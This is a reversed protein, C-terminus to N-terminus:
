IDLDRKKFAIKSILFIVAMFVLAIIIYGINYHGALFIEKADFYKFPSFYRLFDYKDSIDVATSFVFAVLLVASALMRSRKPKKMISAFALGIFLFMAQIFFVAPALFLIDRTISPEETFAGVIIITAITTIINLILIVSVAFLSKTAIGETRTIPRSYLFEATKDTEEKAMIGAGFLVAQVALLISVYLVTVAYYGSAQTLDITNLGFVAGFAEPLDSFVQDIPQGANVFGQYKSMGILLFVVVGLSWFLISKWNSKLEKFYLNRKIM